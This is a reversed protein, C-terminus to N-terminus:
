QPADARLTSLERQLFRAEAPHRVQEIAAQMAEVAGQRDGALFRLRSDALLLPLYSTLGQRDLSDLRALGADIRGCEGLAVARNITVVPSPRQKELVGYLVAIQEWDTTDTSDAECHLAAIAAETQYPGPQHRSLAHQLRARAEEVRSKHWLKRDQRPLPIIEGQAGIRAPLRSAHLLMLCLLGDLECHGPYLSLLLRTLWIAEDCLRADFLHDARASYGQNFILYITTMVAALRQDREGDPPIRFPIGARRLKNRARQLRQEMTRQPVLFAAAVDETSLGAILKLTLAIQASENLAPHCCAFILRLLDDDVGSLDPVRTDAQPETELPLDFRARRARDILRRKGVQILWAAPQDPLGASPWHKLAQEVADQVADEALDLDGCFSRLSALARPRASKFVAAFDAM